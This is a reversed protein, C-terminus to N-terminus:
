NNGKGQESKAWILNNKAYENNPNCQLAKECAEIGKDWIKMANYASCINNYAESYDPRLKLAKNCADICKQYDGANYYQLSLNLYNEPTPNKAAEEENMELQSKKGKAMEIFNLCTQDGPVFTLTENALKTLQEWYAQEAYISMLLYRSQIDGSSITISQL